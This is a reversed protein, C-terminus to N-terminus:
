LTAGIFEEFAPGAVTRRVRIVSETSRGVEEQRCFADISLGSAEFRNLRERWELFEDRGGLPREM